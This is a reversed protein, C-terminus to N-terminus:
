LLAPLVHEAPGAVHHVRILDSLSSPQRKIEVVTAGALAALVPLESAPSVDMACGIVLLVDCASVLAAAAALTRPPVREGFLVVDPRLHGGCACLAPLRDLHRALPPAPPGPGGCALCRTRLLSGHLELIPVDPDRAAAQHLDDVNQTVIGRLNNLRALAHHAPNPQPTRDGWFDAIVSWLVRPDAHFRVASVAEDRAFRQWLQKRTQLGSAVSIGAGTVAVIRPDDRLAARLDDVTWPIRGATFTRTVLPAPAPSELEFLPTACANWAAEAAVAGAAARAQRLTRLGSWLGRPAACAATFHPQAAAFRGSQTLAVALAAHAAADTPAVALARRYAAAADALEGRLHALSGLLVHVRPDDPLAAAAERATIDAEDLAGRARAALARAIAATADVPRTM